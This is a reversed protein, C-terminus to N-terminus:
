WGALQLIKQLARVDIRHRHPQTRNLWQHAARDLASRPDQLSGNIDYGMAQAKQAWDVDWVSLRRFPMTGCEEFLQVLEEDWWYYPKTDITTMDIGQDEYEDFWADPFPEAQQIAADMHHYQRYITVPRKAPHALREYCQYWRQKSKMREWNAYQYHLVRIDNLDLRPADDPVPIRPSHIRQGQHPSGDDVFGFPMWDDPLWGAKIDPTVNAWKFRLITGKPADCIARWEDSQMWNATLMEDADLAILIRKRGVSIQRATRILLKQRAEEDYGPHNNDILKVKEYSRAIERSGDNSHQDAVVIHDAWTSACQLFRDLIWAENKVPTLCILSPDRPM